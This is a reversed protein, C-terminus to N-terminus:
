KEYLGEDLDQIAESKEAFLSRNMEPLRVSELLDCNVLFSHGVDTVSKLGSLDLETLGVCSDLFGSQITTVSSLGHTDLATLLPCDGLFWRGVTTVSELGSLNLTTISSCSSMFADGITTVSSLGSLDLSTIRPCGALFSIGVATVTSLGLFDVEVVSACQHLFEDAVVGVKSNPNRFSIREVIPPLLCADFSLCGDSSFTPTDLYLCEEKSTELKHLLKERLTEDTFWNKGFLRFRKKFVELETNLGVGHAVLKGTELLLEGALSLQLEEPDLDWETAAAILVDSVLSDAGATFSVSPLGLDPCTVSVEM